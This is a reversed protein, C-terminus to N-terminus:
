ETIPGVTIIKMDNTYGVHGLKDGRTVIVQDGDSVIGQEKLEAIVRRIVEWRECCTVDLNVPYVGRYLMMQGRAYKNRSVGYIPIGSSIRSMWLPTSGSETLAVIAKVELHNATYMAAMAIAEDVRTFRTALRHQSVQTVRQKEASVCIQAMCEVVQLPYDGVATEGSLMVADTGEVVANAVDSVEARTPISNQIMSEMMQTATVVAKDLERARTIIHKQIAPLEAFGMEVGLDGRAVMVADSAVIIEDLAAIAEVREIKAIVGATSGLQKLIAKIELIDAASRPFSLAVYDAHYEAAIAADHKDKETIAAASLGGGQRNFGKHNSLKGGVRVVCHVQYQEVKVVDMVIRGDDFLLIDGASVDQPLNKYDIGVADQTGSDHELKADLIFKDGVKLTIVKNAFRAIRLKPGQLDVLVAVEKKLEQAVTRISEIWRRHDPTNGHSMNVRIVDVGALIIARLMAPNETAPGITAIIKTRRLM